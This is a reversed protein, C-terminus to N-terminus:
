RTMEYKTTLTVGTGVQGPEIPTVKDRSVATVAVAGEAVPM